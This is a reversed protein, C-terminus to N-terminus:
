ITINDIEKFFRSMESRLTAVDRKRRDEHAEENENQQAKGFDILFFTGDQDLMVNRLYADNHTLGREHIATLLQLLDELVKKRDVQKALAMLEPSLEPRELLQSLNKGNVKEMGFSHGEKPHIRLFYPMPIRASGQQLDSVASLFKFETRLHNNENYSKQNTIFKVCITPFGSVEYVEATGGNGQFLDVRGFSAVVGKDFLKIQEAIQPDLDEPITTSALAEARKEKFDAFKKFFAACTEETANEELLRDYEDEWKQALQAVDKGAARMNEIDELFEKELSEFAPANENTQVPQQPSSELM